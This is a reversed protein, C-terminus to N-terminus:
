LIFIGPSDNFQKLVFGNAGAATVGFDDKLFDKSFTTTASGLM